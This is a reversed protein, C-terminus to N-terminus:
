LVRNFLLQSGWVVSIAVYDNLKTSYKIIAKAKGMFVRQLTKSLGILGISLVFLSILVGIIGGAEDGAGSLFGKSIMNGNTVEDDYYKSCGLYCSDDGCEYASKPLADKCKVLAAYAKKSIKKYNKNLDPSVCAYESCDLQSLAEAEVEELRRKSLLARAYDDGSSSTLRRAQTCNASTVGSMLNCIGECFGEPKQAAPRDLTQAYIICKNSNLFIDVVPTTVIKIPSTFL